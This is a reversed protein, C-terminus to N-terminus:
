RPRGAGRLKERYRLERRRWAAYRRPALLSWALYGYVRAVSPNTRLSAALRRRAEDVVAPDDDARALLERGLRLEEKALSRRLVKKERRAFEPHERGLKDLLALWCRANLEMNESLNGAHKRRLLLPERVGYLRTLFSLRLVLDCEEASRLSEDFGGVRELLERRVVFWSCCGADHLLLGTTSYDTGPSNKGYVRATQRGDPEIERAMVSVLGVDANRDFVPVVRELLDPEWLDDSDLFGVLEGRAAAIGRNKAAAPGARDQRLYRVPGDLAAIRRATDDTSGDDVVIVELDAFRQALASGVAEVVLGARDHTPIVVSVRPGPATRENGSSTEMAHGWPLRHRTRSRAIAENQM